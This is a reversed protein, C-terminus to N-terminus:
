PGMLYMARPTSLDALWQRATEPSVEPWRSAPSDAAQVSLGLMGLLGRRPRIVVVPPEPHKISALEAARDLAADLYDIEDVLGAKLAGKATFVKGTAVNLVAQRDPLTAKRGEAVIDVFRDHMEDMIERMVAKDEETWDRFLNNAVAKDTSRTSTITVPKIGLKQTLLEEFTFVQGIVGISGTITSPEAIIRDALCSVYYGGSAAVAGYSAVLKIEPRERRLRQLEHHIQDSPAVGGGPSSVRLVVAKIHPDEIIRDVAGHVFDVMPTMIVGEIPLIAIKELGPGERYSATIPGEGTRMAFLAVYFGMAFIMLVLSILIGLRSMGALWGGRRPESTAPSPPNSAPPSAPSVTESPSGGESVIHPSENDQNM